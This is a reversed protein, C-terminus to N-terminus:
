PLFPLPPLPPLDEKEEEKKLTSVPRIPYAFVRHYDSVWYAGGSYFYLCQGQEEYFKSRTSSWYFGEEGVSDFGDYFLGAAPLFMSNGNKAKFVMGYVGNREDWYWRCNDILEQCQSSSPIKWNTGWNFTAADDEPLVQSIGDKNNYKTYEWDKIYKIFKYSQPNVTDIPDTDAWTFYDGYEEPKSAGINVTAWLTGSPLGLDVYQISSTDATINKEEYIVQVVEKTNYVDTQGNTQRVYMFTTTDTNSFIKSAKKTRVPRITLGSYRYESETSPTSSGKKYQLYLAESDSHKYLTSTWYQANSGKGSLKERKSGAAPLIIFNGNPGTIKVYQNFNIRGTGQLEKFEDPTPMRWESGWIATAADDAPLLTDGFSYKTYRHTTTDYWQYNDIYFSDKSEIEGWAFYDGCEEPTTAGINVNAWLTGSPLGLDVYTDTPITDAPTIFTEFDVQTVFDNYYKKVSGDKSEVCMFTTASLSSCLALAAVFAILEKRM